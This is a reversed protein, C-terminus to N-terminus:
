VSGQWTGSCTGGNWDASWSGTASSGDDGFTGSLTITQSDGFPDFDAEITFARDTVAWGPTREQSVTGSTTSASSGCRWNSFSFTVKEILAGGSAVVLSFSGFEATATWTGTQIAKPTEPGTGGDGDCAVASVAVLLVLVRRVQRTNM